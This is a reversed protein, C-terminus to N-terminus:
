ALQGM